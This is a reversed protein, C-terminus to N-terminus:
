DRSRSSGCETGIVFFSFFSPLFFSQLKEAGTSTTKGPYRETESVPGVMERVDINLLCKELVLDWGQGAFSFEYDSCVSVGLSSPACEM